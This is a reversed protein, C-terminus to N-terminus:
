FPVDEYVLGERFEMAILHKQWNDVPNAQNMELLVDLGVVGDQFWAALEATEEETFSLKCKTEFCTSARKWAECSGGLAFAFGKGVSETFANEVEGKFYALNFVGNTNRQPAKINRSTGFRRGHILALATAGLKSGCDKGLYKFVYGFGGGSKVLRIDVISGFGSQAALKSLSQQPIYCDFLFHLHPRGKDHGFELVWFFKTLGYKRVLHGRLINWATKLSRLMGVFSLGKRATLTAFRIKSGNFGDKVRNGLIIQKRKACEPCAWSGCPIKVGKISITSNHICAKFATGQWKQCM